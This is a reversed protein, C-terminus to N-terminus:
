IGQLRHMRQIGQANRGVGGIWPAHVFNYRRRFSQTLHQTRRLSASRNRLIQLLPQFDQSLLNSRQRRRPRQKDHPGIRENGDALIRKDRISQPARAGYGDHIGLLVPRLHIQFLHRPQLRFNQYKGIRM